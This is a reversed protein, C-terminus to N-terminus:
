VTGQPSTCLLNPVARHEVSHITRATPRRHQIAQDDRHRALASAVWTNHGADDYGLRTLVRYNADNGYSSEVPHRHADYRSKYLLRRVLVTYVGLLAGSLM